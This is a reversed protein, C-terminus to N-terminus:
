TFERWVGEILREHPLFRAKYRMTSSDAIYLGLYLYRLGWQKCFELQKLISYTGISLHAYTPDYYCYVASLGEAGRDAISIGVLKDSVSYRFEVSECCTNVLFDAYGDLDIPEQGDALGRGEKHKNYLDVRSRELTPVGVELDLADDGIKLTRRHTRSPTFRAVDIRIPECAQCGPCRTRYLVLGQRRDGLALREDLEAPELTRAPLRLPMRAVRGPLYPCRSPRDYVVLEPPSGPVVRITM